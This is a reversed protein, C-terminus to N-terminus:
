EAPAEPEALLQPQQSVANGKRLGVQFFWLQEAARIGPHKRNLDNRLAGINQWAFSAISILTKL